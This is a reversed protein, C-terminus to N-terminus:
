EEEVYYNTKYKSKRTYVTKCKHIRHHNLSHGYMEIEAERAGRRSARIFDNQYNNKRM